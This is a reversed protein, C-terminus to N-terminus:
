EALFGHAKLLQQLERAVPSNAAGGNRKYEKLVQSLARLTKSPDKTSGAKLDRLLAQQAIDPAWSQAPRGLDMDNRTVVGNGVEPADPRLKTGIREAGYKRRLNSIDEELTTTSTGNGKLPADKGGNM